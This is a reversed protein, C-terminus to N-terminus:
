LGARILKYRDIVASAYQDWALGLERFSDQTIEDEGASITTPGSLIGQLVDKAAMSAALRLCGQWVDEPVTASYGWKGTVVVSSPAGYVPFFFEIWTYPRGKVPANAPMLRLQRQLDMTQGDPTDPTVGLAVSTCSLLGADLELVKEGGLYYYTELKSRPGPPDYSRSVDSADKLFPILGTRNQFETQALAGYGTFSFGSPATVGSAVVFTQVESDSPFSSHM